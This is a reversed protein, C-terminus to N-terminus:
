SKDAEGDGLRARIEANRALIAARRKAYKAVEEPNLARVRGLAADYISKVPGFDPQIFDPDDELESYSDNKQPEVGPLRSPFRPKINKNM